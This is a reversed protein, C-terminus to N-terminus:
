AAGDLQRQIAGAREALAIVEKVPSRGFQAAELGELVSTIEESPWAPRQEHVVRILRATLIGAPTGRVQSTITARLVRAAAAAVARSEGAEAWERIPVTAVPGASRPAVVMSAGRRRWWWALPAFLLGAVLLAAVLPWPSTIREQVIGAEPQVQIRDPPEGAPLVSAVEITRSEAPLSDTVGDSRIVVPGPVLITHVGASWAAIPYAVVAIAGERRVVPRGLLGVEGEPNWPAARVEGGPPVEVSREMWITDGVTPQAAQLLLLLSGIM